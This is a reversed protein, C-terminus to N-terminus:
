KRGDVTERGISAYYYGREKMEAVEYINRGDFIVKDKLGAEMRKWDPTRFENWETVVLLADVHQFVDYQKEAMEIPLGAYKHFQEMAEPDFAIVKAGRALLESIIVRAPAERVDDTNPKFALGWVAFTKGALSDGYFARVKDVLRQKQIENVDM